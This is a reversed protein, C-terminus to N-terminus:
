RNYDFDDPSWPHKYESRAMRRVDSMIAPSLRRAFPLRPANAVRDLLIASTDITRKMIRPSVHDLNDHTSHLTWYGGAGTSPRTLFVSPVGLINLPFQDSYPNMGASVTVPHRRRSWTTEVLQCLRRDGLVEAQSTGVPSGITDFNLCLVLRKREAPPLSRMYLYSGVSLREEVGYSIFRLTRRPRRRAFIRAMELVAAAGTANDDAGVNGGVSDHHASVVIVDDSERGPVEAVVNHSTSPFSSATVEVRVRAPMSEVLDVADMFSIGVAPLRFDDVWAPSAGNSTTWGFPL